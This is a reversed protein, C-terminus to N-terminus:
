DAPSSAASLGEGFHSLGRAQPLGLLLVLEAQWTPAFRLLVARSDRGGSTTSRQPPGSSASASADHGSLAATDLRATGSESTRYSLGRRGFRRRDARGGAPGHTDGAFCGKPFHLLLSRVAASIESDLSRSRFEAEVQMATAVDIYVLFSAEVTGVAEGRCWLRCSARLSPKLRSAPGARILLTICEWCRASVHCCEGIIITVATQWFAKNPLPM